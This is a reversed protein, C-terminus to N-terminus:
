YYMNIKKLSEEDKVVVFLHKWAEKFSDYAFVSYGMVDREIQNNDTNFYWSEYFIIKNIQSLLSTSDCYFMRSKQETGDPKYSVEDVSDCKKFVKDLADATIPQSDLSSYLLSRPNKIMILVSKEIMKFQSSNLYIGQRSYYQSFEHMSVRGSDSRAYATKVMMTDKLIVETEKYPTIEFRGKVIAKDSKTKPSCSFVIVGAFAIILNKM